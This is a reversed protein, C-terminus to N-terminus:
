NSGVVFDTPQNQGCICTVSVAVQASSGGALTYTFTDRLANPADTCFRTAPTYLVTAGGPGVAATGHGPQTVATITKPGGDIDTDNALVNIATAAANETVTATDAVAVPPDDVCTVTVSVTATSTGPALTYTFTDAGCFEAKPAYTLGTGGGTIAVTGNGPQTVAAISRPGADLDTDNDLVAIATAAADETVTAADAVALPADDVATVTVDRTASGTKNAAGGDDVTFRVTRAATSPADSSSLYTVARLALQYSAPSAAGALTLTCTASIYTATIGAPPAALALVDEVPSCGATIAVTAGALSTSDIDAIALGPDIVVADANEVYSAAGTSSSSVMPADNVPTVTISVTANARGYADTGLVVATDPGAYNPAPTYTWTPGTGTLAGHSPPTVVTLTVAAADMATIQVVVQAPTDEATMVTVNSLKPPAPTPPPKPSDGCAALALSCSALTRFKLKL